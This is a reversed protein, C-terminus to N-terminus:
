WELPKSPDSAQQKSKLVIELELASLLKFLSAISSRAPDTELVSVTKPLLGVRSAVEKQTLGMAQRQGRLVAALQDPTLAYLRM